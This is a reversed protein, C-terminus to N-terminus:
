LSKNPMTNNIIKLLAKGQYLVEYYSKFFSYPWGDRNYQIEFAFEPEGSRAILGKSQLKVISSQYKSVELINSNESFGFISDIRSSSKIQRLVQFDFPLLTECEYILNLVTDKKNKKHIYSAMIGAYVPIKEINPDNLSYKTTVEFIDALDHNMSESISEKIQEIENALCEILYKLKENQKKATYDNWVSVLSGTVPFATAIAKISTQIKELSNM